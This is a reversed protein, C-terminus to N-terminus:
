NCQGGTPPSSGNITGPFFGQLCSTAGTGTYINGLTAASARTGTVTFSSLNITWNPVSITGGIQTLAFDTVTINKLLTAGGAQYLIAGGNQAIMHFNANGNIGYVGELYIRSGSSAANFHAGNPCSGVWTGPDVLVQGGFDVVICDGQASNLIINKVRVTGGFVGLASLGAGTPAISAANTGLGNLVLASTGAGGPPVSCDYHIGQTDVATANVNVVFSTAQGNVANPGAFDFNNCALYLAHEATKCARGTGIALCDNADNGNTFDSYVNFVAASPLLLRGPFRRASWAGNMVQVEGTQSPWLMLQTSTFGAPFGSLLMGAGTDTANTDGNKVTVTCGEAFGTVAPLTITQPTTTGTGMQVTKGCDTTAITYSTTQINTGGTSLTINPSSVSEQLNTGALVSVGGVLGNLTSIGSTAAAAIQGPTVFKITGAANDYIPLKDNNASPAGRATLGQITFSQLNATSATPNGFLTAAGGTQSATIQNPTVYELLGSTNNYELIKDNVPDTTGVATLGQITFDQVNATANTPNGKITGTPATALKSNSVVNPSITTVFANTPTTVDGTLQFNVSTQTDPLVKIIYDTTLSPQILSFSASTGGQPNGAFTVNSSNLGTVNISTTQGALPNIDIAAGGQLNNAPTNGLSTFTHGHGPDNINITGTPTYPPLNNTALNNAQGGGAQDLANPDVGYFQQTLNSGPSGGMNNRGVITRGRLDPLGFTTSGDGNGWPFLTMTTSVTATANTSMTLTGSGKTVVTTGPAFCSAEVKAGEPIGDSISSPVTVTAIGTQCLVTSQYTIATFLASYTTRSLSGGFTWMYNTPLSTGIWPLITGVANGDGFSTGGGGGSGSGTSATVVDWITNGLSDKLIQRYNGSGYVIACGNIDLPVPNQNLTSEASNQWTQKTTLTNPIYYAVSGGALSSNISTSAVPFAFGSGSGGITAAAASLVDGVVYQTGPNLITVATIAGGAITINATANTGSGGTLPVGGYTGNTYLSGATIAGITGIMGNVGATAQFCQKGPPLLTATASTQARVPAYVPTLAIVAALAAALCNNLNM